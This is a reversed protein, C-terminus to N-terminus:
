EWNDAMSRVDRSSTGASYGGVSTTDGSPDDFNAWTAGPTQHSWPYV